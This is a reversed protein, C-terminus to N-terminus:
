LISISGGGLKGGARCIISLPGSVVEVNKTTCSVKIHVSGTLTVVLCSLGIEETVYSSCRFGEGPPKEDNDDRPITRMAM